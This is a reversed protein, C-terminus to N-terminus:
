DQAVAAPAAGPDHSAALTHLGATGRRRREGARRDAKPRPLREGLADAQHQMTELARDLTAREQASLPAVLQANFAQVVPFFEEFLAVGAPTLCLCVKRADGAVSQRQMLGKHVLSGIARSTRARDLRTASALESSLMQRQPGLTAILRWERWTIGRGGECWRLVTGGAAALVRSIRYLLLSDILAPPTDPASM